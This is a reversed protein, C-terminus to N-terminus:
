NRSYVWYDGYEKRDNSGIMPIEAKTFGYEQLARVRGEAAPVGKTMCKECTFWDYMNPELLQILDDFVEKKEYDSRLDIRFLGYGDYCDDSARHFAEITGVAEKTVKDIISWRVFWRNEYAYIWFDVAQEMREMTTYYFDDGDCNDSNFFPVAKEDSYVKLLAATDEKSILRLLFRENELVQCERYIDM